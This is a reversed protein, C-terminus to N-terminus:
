RAVCRNLPLKPSMNFYLLYDGTIGEGPSQSFSWLRMKRYENGYTATLDVTRSYMRANTIDDQTATRITMDVFRPELADSPFVLCKRVYTIYSDNIFNPRPEPPM